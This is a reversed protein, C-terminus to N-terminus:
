VLPQALLGFAEGTLGVFLILSIHSRLCLPSGQHCEENGGQHREAQGAGGLRFQRTFEGFEGL